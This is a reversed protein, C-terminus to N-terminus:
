EDEGLKILDVFSMRRGQEVEYGQARAQKYMPRLIHRYYFYKVFYIMSYPWLVYRMREADNWAFSPVKAGMEIDERTITKM